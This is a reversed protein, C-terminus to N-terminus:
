VCCYCSPARIGGNAFTMSALFDLEQVSSAKPSHKVAATPRQPVSGQPEWPFAAPVDEYDRTKAIDPCDDKDFDDKGDGNESGGGSNWWM